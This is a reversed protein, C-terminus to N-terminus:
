KNGTARKQKALTVEATKQLYSNFNKFKDEFMLSLLQGALELRKNGYYDKDDLCNEDYMANIMRRLMITIYIVKMTFDFKYVPIHCIIVNALLARVQEPKSKKGGFIKQSPKLKAGIYDLAQNKNFIKLTSCEQLSQEIKEFYRQDTGILQIIEQDNEYNMAKFLVFIPIPDVFSNHKLYIKDNKVIINTKSKSSHTSSTVSGSVM